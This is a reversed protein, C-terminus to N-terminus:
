LHFKQRKNKNNTTASKEQAYYPLFSGTVLNSPSSEGKILSFVV